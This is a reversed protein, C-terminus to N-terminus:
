TKKASKSKNKVPTERLLMSRGINMAVLDCPGNKTEVRRPAHFGWQRKSFGWVIYFNRLQLAPFIGFRTTTKFMSM